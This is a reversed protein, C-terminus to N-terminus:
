HKGRVFDMIGHPKVIKSKAQKEAEKYFNDLTKEAMKLFGYSAVQNGLLPFSVQMEGTPQMTIVMVLPQPEEHKDEGNGDKKEESMEGKGAEM